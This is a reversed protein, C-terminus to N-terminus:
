FILVYYLFIYFSYANSFEDIELVYILIHKLFTLRHFCLKNNIVQQRCSCLLFIILPVELKKM